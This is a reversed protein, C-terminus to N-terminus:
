PFELIVEELGRRLKWLVGARLVGLGGALLFTNITKKRCKWCFKLRNM